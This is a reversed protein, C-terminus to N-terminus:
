YRYTKEAHSQRQMGKDRERETKRETYYIHIISGINGQRDTQRDTEAERQKDRMVWQLLQVECGRVRRGYASGIGGEEAESEGVGEVM